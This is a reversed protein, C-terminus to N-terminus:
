NIDRFIMGKIKYLLPKGKKKSAQKHEDTIEPYENENEKKKEMIKLTEIRVDDPMDQFIYDNAMDKGYEGASFKKFEEYESVIKLFTNSDSAYYFNINYLSFDKKKILNDIGKIKIYDAMIRSQMEEDTIVVKNWFRLMYDAFTYKFLQNCGYHEIQEKAPYFGLELSKKFDKCRSIKDDLFTRAIGRNFYLIADDPVLNIAKTYLEIAENFNGTKKQLYALDSIIKSEKEDLQHAKTLVDLAEDYRKLDTLIFGYNGLAIINDPELELASECDQLAEEIRGMTIHVASRKVYADALKPNFHVADNLCDLAKQFNGNQLYAIGDKVFDEALEEKNSFIAFGEGEIKM